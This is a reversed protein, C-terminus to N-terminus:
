QSLYVPEAELNYILPRQDESGKERVIRMTVTAALAALLMTFINNQDIETVETFNYLLVYVMCALPWARLHGEQVCYFRISKRLYVIYSLVFLVVGVVGLDLWVELLGNHATPVLWRVSLDIRGSEGVMGMWFADFGYGLFPRKMISVFVEKWLTTRGTLTADRGLLSLALESNAVLAVVAAASIAGIFLSISALLKTQTHLFRFFPSVCLLAILVVLGTASRTMGLMALALALAFYRLAPWSPRWGYFVLVALVAIRALVNKQTFLGRWNGLHGGGLEVGLGPAVMAVAASGALVVLLAWSLIQMQEKLDFRSGFYLGFMVTGMLIVGRRFTLFPDQSWATSSIAFLVMATWWPARAVAAVLKKSHLIYFFSAIGHLTVQTALAISDSQPGMRNMPDFLLGLAGSAFVFMVVAFLTEIVKLM